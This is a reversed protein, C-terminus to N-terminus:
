MHKKIFQSQIVIFSTIGDKLLLRFSVVHMCIHPLSIWELKKKTKFCFLGRNQEITWM